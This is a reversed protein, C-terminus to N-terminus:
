EVIDYKHLTRLTRLATFQTHALRKAEEVDYWGLEVFAKIRNTRGSKSIQSVEFHDYLKRMMQKVSTAAYGMEEGIEEYTLYPRVRLVDLLFHLRYDTVIPSLDWIQPIHILGTRSFLHLRTYPPVPLVVSLTQYLHSPSSSIMDTIEKVSKTPNLYLYYLLVNQKDTWLENFLNM